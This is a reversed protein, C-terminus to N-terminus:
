DASRGAAELLERNTRAKWENPDLVLAQDYARRADDVRGAGEYAWGLNNWVRAKGPSHRATAEWLAV